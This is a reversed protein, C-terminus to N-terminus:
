VFEKHDVDGIMQGLIKNYDQYYCRTCQSGDFPVQKDIIGLLDRADGMCMSDPLDLDQDLHAYQVGCCPYVKGDAGILPKLLSIWCQKSGHDFHKRCQYIVLSDNICYPALGKKINDMEDVNDLNCLDSVVRIHTFHRSNAFEIYKALNEPRYHDGVVYSFAWDVRNGRHVASHLIAQAEETFPREDACSVRCWTVCQLADTRLKEFLLGNTVLGIKIDASAILTLIENINRHMLPEGGGTVTVAKCGLSVMSDVIDSIQVMSLEETKDRKKCSCFSCNLNCRNTPILQMHFAPIIGAQLCTTVDENKFIKIPVANAATYSDKRNIEPIETM